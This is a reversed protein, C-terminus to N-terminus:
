KKPNQIYGAVYPVGNPYRAWLVHKADMIYQNATTTTVIAMEDSVVVQNPKASAKGQMPVIKKDAEQVFVATDGRLNIVKKDALGVVQREAILMKNSNRAIARVSQEKIANVYRPYTATIENIALVPNVELQNAAQCSLKLYQVSNNWGDSFIQERLKKNPHTDTDFPDGITEYVKLCDALSFHQVLSIKYCLFGAFSDAALERQRRDVPADSDMFNDGNLHHTIEHSFLVYAVAPSCNLALDALYKRDYVIYRHIFLEKQRDVIPEIIAVANKLDDSEAVFFNRNDNNLHMGTVELINQIIALASSDPDSLNSPFYYADLSQFGCAKAKLTDAVGHSITRGSRNFCSLVILLVASIVVLSASRLIKFTNTRPTKM